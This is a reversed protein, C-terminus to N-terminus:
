RKRLKWIIETKRGLPFSHTRGHFRKVGLYRKIHWAGWLTRKLRMDVMEFMQKQMSDLAQSSMTDGCFFDMSGPFFFRLHHPEDNFGYPVRIEVIGGPKLVRHIESMPKLHWLHIHELVHSALIYDVSNDPMPIGQMLDFVKDVGDGPLYDCNIWGELIDKGCGLNLKVEQM